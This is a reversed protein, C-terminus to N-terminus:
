PKRASQWIEEAMGEALETPPPDNPLQAPVTTNRKAGPRDAFLAVTLALRPDYGTSWVTRRTIGGGAGATFFAGSQDPRAAVAVGQGDQGGHGGRLGNARATVAYAGKEDLVRRTGPRATHVTRGERTIRTVTHPTAYAGDAAVAAYAAALRLPTPATAGHLGSLPGGLRLGGFPELAAGAEVAGSVADNFPQRAYDAGGYLVRV